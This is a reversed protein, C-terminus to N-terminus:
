GLCTLVRAGFSQPDESVSTSMSRNSMCVTKGEHADLWEYCSTDVENWPEARSPKLLNSTRNVIGIALWSALWNASKAGFHDQMSSVPGFHDQM